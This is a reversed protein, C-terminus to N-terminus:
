RACGSGARGSGELGLSGALRDQEARGIDGLPHPREALLALGPEGALSRGPMLPLSIRAGSRSRLKRHNKATLCTLMSRCSSPAPRARTRPGRPRRSGWRGPCTSAACVMGHHTNRSTPPTTASRNARRQYDLAGVDTAPRGLAGGGASRDAARALQPLQDHRPAILPVTAASAERADRCPAAAPGGRGAAAPWRRSDSTRPASRDDARADAASSTTVTPGPQASATSASVQSTAPGGASGRAGGPAPRARRCGDVNARAGRPSSRKQPM